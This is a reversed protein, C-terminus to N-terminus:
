HNKQEVGQFEIYMPIQKMWAIDYNIDIWNNSTSDSLM